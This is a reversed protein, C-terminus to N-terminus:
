GRDDTKTSQRGPQGVIQARPLGIALAGLGIYLYLWFVTTSLNSFLLGEVFSAALFALLGGIAANAAVQAHPSDDELFQLRVLFRASAYLLFAIGAVGLLGANAALTLYSNETIAMNLSSDGFIPNRGWADLFVGWGASRTDSVNSLRATSQEAIGIWALLFFLAVSAPMAVLMLRGLRLRYYGLVGIILTAAAGRSGTWAIAAMVICWGLLLVVCKVKSSGPWSVLCLFAPASLALLMGAQNPNNSLGYLRSNWSVSGPLVVECGLSAVAFILSAVVGAQVWLLAQRPGICMRPVFIAFSSFVILYTLFRSSAQLIQSTFLYRFCYIGYFTLAAWAVLPIAVRAQQESGRAIFGPLLLLLSALMAIRGYQVLPALGFPVPSYEGAMTVFPSLSSFLVVAALGIWWNNRSFGIGIFLGAFAVFGMVAVPNSLIEFVQGLRVELLSQALIM